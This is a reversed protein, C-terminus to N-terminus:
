VVVTPAAQAQIRQTMTGIVACVVLGIACRFSRSVMTSGRQRILPLQSPKGSLRNRLVFRLTCRGQEWVQGPLTPFVQAPGLRRSGDAPPTTSTRPRGRTGAVATRQAM